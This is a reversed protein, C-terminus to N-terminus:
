RVKFFGTECETILAAEPKLEWGPPAL